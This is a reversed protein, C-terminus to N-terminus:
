KKDTKKKAPEKKDAKKPEKKDAKKPEKKKDLMPPQDSKAQITARVATVKVEGLDVVVEEDSTLKHIKGLLGGATVIKDGKKLNDLMVKHEQFRKQQPRILLFYFMFVLAFILGMNWIGTSVMDAAAPSTALDQALEDAAEQAHAISILM